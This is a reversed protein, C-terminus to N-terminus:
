PTQLSSAPSPYRPATIRFARRARAQYAKLYPADGGFVNAADETIGGSSSHFLAEIPKGQYTLIVGRTASVAGSLKDFYM